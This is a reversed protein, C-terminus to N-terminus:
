EAPLRELVGWREANPGFALDLMHAAVWEPSSFSEDRKMQVFKERLPFREESTARIAKQMDTDIVGPAVSHARLGADREEIAVCETLRDVAAKTACYASWGSYGKRAAGSSINILVGGGERGRVHRVFSQTGHVVGLVNVQLQRAFEESTIDRLPAIPDLIGANNIWLDIRGFRAVVAQAFAEVAPGDTVDLRAGLATDSDAMAPAGRSCLGLRLGQAAFHEAMGAGLGRSAGTIVAVRGDFM